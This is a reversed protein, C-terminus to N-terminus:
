AGVSDVLEQVMQKDNLMDAYMSTVKRVIEVVEAGTYLREKPAAVVVQKKWPNVKLAPPLRKWYLSSKELENLSHKSTLANIHFSGFWEPIPGNIKWLGRKIKTICGLQKLATQYCRTTYYPNNNYRKWYTNNEHIGVAANLDKATYTIQDVQADIGRSHLANIMEKYRAFLTM